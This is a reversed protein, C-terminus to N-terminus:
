YRHVWLGHHFKALTANTLLYIKVQSTQKQDLFITSIIGLQCPTIFNVNATHNTSALLFSLTVIRLLSPFYFATILTYILALCRNRTIQKTFM